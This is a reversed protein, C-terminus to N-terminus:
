GTLKNLVPSEPKGSVPDWRRLKYFEQLMQRYKDKDLKNGSVDIPGNPGPAM